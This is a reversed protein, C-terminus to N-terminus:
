RRVMIKMRSGINYGNKLPEYCIYQVDDDGKWTLLQETSKSGRYVTDIKVLRVNVIQVQVEKEGACSYIFAPIILFLAAKM